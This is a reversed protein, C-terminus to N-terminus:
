VKKERPLDGKKAEKKEKKSLSEVLSKSRFV